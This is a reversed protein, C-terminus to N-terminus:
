PNELMFEEVSKIWNSVVQDRRVFGRRSRMLRRQIVIRAFQLNLPGEKLDSFRGKGGQQSFEQLVKAQLQRLFMLDNIGFELVSQSGFFANLHLEKEHLIFSGAILCPVYGPRKRDLIDEPSFVSFILGGSSPEKLFINCINEIQDIGRGCFNNIRGIYSPKTITDLSSKFAKAARVNGFDILEPFLHSLHVQLNVLREMGNDRYPISCFFPAVQWIGDNSTGSELCLTVATYLFHVEDQINQNGFM